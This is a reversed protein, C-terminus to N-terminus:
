VSICMIIRRVEQTNYLTHRSIKPQHCRKGQPVSALTMLIFEREVEDLSMGLHIPSSTVGKVPARAPGATIRSSLLDLTLEPGRAMVVARQIVNKLERVNGPWPYARLMQYIEAPARRINKKYLANFRGIFHNTLFSVDGPRERLLRCTSASFM